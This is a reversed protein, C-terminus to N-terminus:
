SIFLNKLCFYVYFRRGFKVNFVDECSPAILMFVEFKKHKVVLHFITNGGSDKAKLLEHNWYTKDELFVTLVCVDGEMAALHLPNRGNGDLTACMDPNARVLERVIQCHGQAAALHLASWRRPDLVRALGKNKALLARVFELKGEFAAVHLPTHVFCGVKVRRLILPDKALIQNLLATDGQLAAEHLTREMKGRLQSQEM